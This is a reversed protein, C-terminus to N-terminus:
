NVDTQNNRHLEAQECVSSARSTPNQPPTESVSGPCSPTQDPVLAVFQAAGLQVAVCVSRPSLRRRPPPRCPSLSRLAGRPPQPANVSGRVTSLNLSIGILFVPIPAGRGEPLFPATCAGSASGSRGGRGQRLPAPGGGGM